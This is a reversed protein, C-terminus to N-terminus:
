PWIEAFLNEFMSRLELGGDISLHDYDRYMARGHREARWLGNDDVLYKVDQRLRAVLSLM